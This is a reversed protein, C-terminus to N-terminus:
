SSAPQVHQINISSNIPETPSSADENDLDFILIYVRSGSFVATTDVKFNDIFRKRLKQLLEARNVNKPDNLGNIYTNIILDHITVPDHIRSKKKEPSIEHTKKNLSKIQINPVGAIPKTPRKPCKFSWAQHDESGCGTCKPPLTSTCKNLPHTGYCKPCSPPTNCSETPHAFSLCKSCPKPTPNPPKSPYVPYHRYKYFLGEKLLTEFTHLSGSIIRILTTPTQTAKSVIRKCYRHELKLDQLHESIRKEEIEQEVSGIVVSYSATPTSPTSKNNTSTEKFNQIRKVKVLNQLTETINDKDQNTKLLLGTKTKLIEDDTKQYIKEWFDCFSIRGADTTLFFMHKYKKHTVENMIPSFNKHQNNKSTQTKTPPIIQTTKTTQTNKNSDPGLIVQRIEKTSLHKNKKSSSELRDRAKRKYKVKRWEGEDDMEMESYSGDSDTSM